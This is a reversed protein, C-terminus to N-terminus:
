PVSYSIVFEEGINGFFDVTRVKISCNGAGDDNYCSTSLTVKSNLIGYDNTLDM